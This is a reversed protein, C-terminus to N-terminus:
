TKLMDLELDINCRGITVEMPLWLTLFQSTTGFPLVLTCTTRMTLLCGRSNQPHSLFDEEYGSDQQEDEVMKRCVAVAHRMKAVWEPTFPCHWEGDAYLPSQRNKEYIM